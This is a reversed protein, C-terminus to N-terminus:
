WPFKEESLASPYCFERVMEEGSELKMFIKARIGHVEGSGGQRPDGGLMPRPNVDDEYIKVSSTTVSGRGKKPVAPVTAKGVFFLQKPEPKIGDSTMTSQEYYIKYEMRLGDIPMDNRNTFDFTFAILEWRVVNMLFNDVTDGGVYNLASFVKEKGSDAETKVCSIQFTREDLFDSFRVWTDVYKRDEVSLQSLPIKGQRGNELKVSIVQKRADYSVIRANIARGTVDTFIHFEEESWAPASFVSILLLCYVIIKM